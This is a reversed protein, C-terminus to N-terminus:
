NKLVTFPKRVGEHISAATKLSILIREEPTTKSKIISLTKLSALASNGGCGCTDYYSSSEGVQFDSEIKFLRGRVGVLFTGGCEENSNVRSYGGEKMSHRVAPIFKSVMFKFIDKSDKNKLKPLECYMLIQGMRFSSTYGILYEGNYFVKPDKRVVFDHGNSGCSDAGIYVNGGDVMGVVCTM